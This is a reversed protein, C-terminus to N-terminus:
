VAAKKARPELPPIGKVEKVPPPEQTKEEPPDEPTEVPPLDLEDAMIHTRLAQTIDKEACGAEKFKGIAEELMKKWDGDTVALIQSQEFMVNGWMVLAHTHLGPEDQAEKKETQPPTPPPTKSVVQNQQERKEKEAERQKDLSDGLEVGKKYLEWSKDVMSQVKPVKDKDIRGLAKKMAENMAAAAADQGGTEASTKGADKEKEKESGSSSDLPPEILLGIKVKAREFELQALALIGDYFDEKYEMAKKYRDEAKDFLEQIKPEVDTAKEGKMAAEGALKHGVCLYVNGWNLLGVCTVEKFKEAAEDFIPLAKDCHIAAELAKQCKEVGLNHMDVHREPDIGLNERFLNAFDVLWDDIEYVAEEGEKKAEAKARAARAEALARRTALQQHRERVEEEPPQPVDAESAAKVLSIRVPPLQPPLRPGHGSVQKEYAALVETIANSIDAQETITVMDGEKDVHRLILPGENPFKAKVLSLLEAYSTTHSLHVLRTEDGLTCKASFYLAPPVRRNNGSRTTGVAAGPAGNAVAGPRRGSLVEKLRKESEQSAESVEEGKNVQQIDQLAQKYLGQQELAKSRRQLAKGNGPSSTLASTCEKAADKYRRMQLFCAGKNSYLDAREAAGEPLLKIAKDYTELAKQYEKAAFSQNGKGKLGEVENLVDAEVSVCEGGSSKTRGKKGM